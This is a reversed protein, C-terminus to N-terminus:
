EIVHAEIDEGTFPDPENAAIAVTLRRQEPDDGSFFLRVLAFDELRVIIGDSIEPVEIEFLKKVFAADSRSLVIQPGHSTKNVELIYARM